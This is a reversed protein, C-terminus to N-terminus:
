KKPKAPARKAKPKVAKVLPAGKGKKGEGVADDDDDDEEVQEVDDIQLM